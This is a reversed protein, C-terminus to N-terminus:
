RSLSFLASLTRWIDAVPLAQSWIQVGDVDGTMFLNCAVGAPDAGHYDGILGGGTALTYDIPGTAPTGNGVQKGDIFLRVTTGDFTGAANHWKGDWVSAPAEPSRFFADRNAVYFAMGGNSSSYLGYSARVCALGGKALIYRNEGPSASGRFWAAVTAKSVNLAPSDPIQVLDDGDFRLASGMLVGRIWTPDQSDAAPSNGLTGNNGHGSWDRVVQGSGENMPWWGVLPFDASAVGPVALAATATLAATLARIRSSM